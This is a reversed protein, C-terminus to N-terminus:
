EIIELKNDLNNKVKEVEETSDYFYPTTRGKLDTLSLVKGKTSYTFVLDFNVPSDQISIWM